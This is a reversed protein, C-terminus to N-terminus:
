GEKSESRLCWGSYPGMVFDAPRGYEAELDAKFQTRVNLSESDFFEAEEIETRTILQDTDAAWANVERVGHEKKCHPCLFSTTQM